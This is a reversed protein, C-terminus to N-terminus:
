FGFLTPVASVAPGTGTANNAGNTSYIRKVNIQGPAGTAPTTVALGNSLALPLGPQSADPALVQTYLIRNAYFPQWGTSLPFSLALAGAADSTGLPLTIDPFARIRGCLGPLGTNPDTAGLSLVLPVSSPAGSVGFGFELVTANARAATRQLMAGNPTTCSGGLEAPYAGYTHALTGSSWDQTYIGLPNNENQVDYLLADTGNYAFPVDLFLVADMPSPSVTAPTNWDPLNVPKRAFVVVPPDKYNSAYTAGVLNYDAHSMTVTVDTTKPAGVNGAGNRRWGIYTIIPLLNGTLNNDIQQVRTAPGWNGFMIDSSSNGEFFEAGLPTLYRITPQALASGATIALVLLPLTSKM